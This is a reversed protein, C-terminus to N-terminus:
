LKILKWDVIGLQFLINYLVFIPLVLWIIFLSFLIIVWILTVFALICFQVIRVMFSIIRSWIDTMGYMPKFLYKFLIKLNLDYAFEKIEKGIRRLIKYAGVTYWWVPFYLINGIIDRTIFKFTNAFVNM